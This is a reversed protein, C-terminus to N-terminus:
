SRMWPTYTIGILLGEPSLLRATTQGWPEVRTDQLIDAGKAKLESVAEAVDEVDFEITGQPIPVDSPWEDQDFVSRAADRLTWLGFHRLGDMDDTATYDSGDEFEIPVSLMEKYFARSADLNTVIPAFGAVFKINM